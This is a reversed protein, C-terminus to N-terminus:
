KEKLEKDFIKLFCDECIHLTIHSTGNKNFRKFRELMYALHKSAVTFEPRSTGCLYCYKVKRNEKKEEFCHKCKNCKNECEAEVIM